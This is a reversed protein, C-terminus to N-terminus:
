KAAPRKGDGPAFPTGEKVIAVSGLRTGDERSKLTFTHVGATLTHALRNTRAVSGSIRDRVADWAWQDRTLLDSTAPEGQDLAFYFSDSEGTPALARVYFVYRGAQKIEFRCTARGRDRGTGAPVEVYREKGEAPDSQVVMPPIIRMRECPILILGPSTEAFLPSEEDAGPTAFVLSQRARSVDNDALVINRRVENAVEAKL